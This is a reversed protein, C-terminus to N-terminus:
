NSEKESEPSHRKMTKVTLIVVCHNKLGEALLTGGAVIHAARPGHYPRVILLVSFVAALISTALIVTWTELGFQRADKSTQISLLSDLLVLVGLGASLHTIIRQNCSLMIIGLVMLFLGCALDYQFALCYLDNSCYGIVKIIGYVILVIGSTICITLPSIEPLFMYTLGAVYFAISMLIYGDRALRLKKM